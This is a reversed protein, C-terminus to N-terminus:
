RTLSTTFRKLSDALTDYETKLDVTIVATLGMGREWNDEETVGGREGEDGEVEGKGEGEDEREREGGEKEGSAGDEQKRGRGRQRGERKEVLKQPTHTSTLLLQVMWLVLASHM